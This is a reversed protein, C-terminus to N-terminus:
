LLGQRTTIFIYRYQSRKGPTTKAPNAVDITVRALTDQGTSAGPPTYVEANISIVYTAGPIVSPADQDSTSGESIFEGENDFILTKSSDGSGTTPFSFSTAIVSQDSVNSDESWKLIMERQVERALWVSRTDAEAALRSAAASSIATFILPVAFAMVGIAIVVEMLTMGHAVLNGRRANNYRASKM